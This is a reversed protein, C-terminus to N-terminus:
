RREKFIFRTMKEFIEKYFESQYHSPSSGGAIPSNVDSIWNTSRMDIYKADPFEELFISDYVDWNNNTNKVWNIKTQWIESNTKFKSLRGGVLIVRKELNLEHLISYLIRVAERYKDIHKLEGPTFIKKNSFKHKFISDAFYKNYTIFCNEKMEIAELTSDSYNDIVIYDISALFIREKINKLFEVEIYRFVKDSMLDATLSYEPDEFCSSMLSIISNHFFTLPVLFLNKYGPNFYEESRFMSRSFCSGIVAITVPSIKSESREFGNSSCRSSLYDLNAAWISKAKKRIFLLLAGNKEKLFFETNEGQMYPSYSNQVVYHLRDTNNGLSLKLSAHSFLHPLQSCNFSYVGFDTKELDYVEPIHKNDNEFWAKFGSKEFYFNIKDKEITVKLLTIIDETIHADLSFVSGNTM